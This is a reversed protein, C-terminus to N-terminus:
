CFRRWERPFATRKGCGGKATILVVVSDEVFTGPSIMGADEGLLLIFVGLGGLLLLSEREPFVPGNGM